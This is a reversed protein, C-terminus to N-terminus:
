DNQNKWKLLQGCKCENQKLELLMRCVPCYFTYWAPYNPFVKGHNVAVVEMEKKM